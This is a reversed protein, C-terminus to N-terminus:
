SVLGCVQELAATINSARQKEGSTETLLLGVQSGKGTGGKVRRHSQPIHLSAHTDVRQGLVLFGHVAHGEAGVALVQGAAGEILADVDPVGRYAM